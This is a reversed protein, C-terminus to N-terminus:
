ILETLEAYKKLTKANTGIEFILEGVFKGYASLSTFM